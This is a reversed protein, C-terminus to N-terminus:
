TYNPSYYLNILTTLKMFIINFSLSKSYYVMGIFTGLDNWSVNKTQYNKCQVLKYQDVNTNFVM